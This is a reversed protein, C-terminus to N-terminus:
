VTPRRLDNRRWRWSLLFVDRAAPLHGLTVTSARRESAPPSASLPSGSASLFTSPAGPTGPVSWDGLQDALPQESAARQRHTLPLTLIGPDARTITGFDLGGAVEIIPGRIRARQGRVGGRRARRSRRRWHRRAPVRALQRHHTMEVYRASVVQAFAHSDRPAPDRVSREFSPSYSISTGSGQGHGEAEPPSACPSIRRAM